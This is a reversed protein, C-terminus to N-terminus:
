RGGLDLLQACYLGVCESPTSSAVVEQMARVYQLHLEHLRTLDARSVAFVSYGFRGPAGAKLRELATSLWAVKLEHARNPDRGTDVATVQRVRFGRRTKKVQATAELVRLAERVQENSISLQRAISAEQAAPGRARGEIELARLVAHSWPRDYAAERALQLQAFARRVSPMRAPDELAAILDLLRRSTVDVLQLFEPLKPEANGDLWRAVSYRNHQALQAIRVIPTKGKLHRLFAAVAQPSAPDLDAAWTPLTHFFREIWSPGSPRLRRQVALFRAATPWCERAEWRHVVNSRYGALRSLEARSRRGRLARVMEVSIVEYDPSVM